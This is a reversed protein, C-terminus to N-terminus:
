FIVNKIEARNDNVEKEAKANFTGALSGFAVTSLVAIPLIKKKFNENIM